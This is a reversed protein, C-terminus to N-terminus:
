PPRTNPERPGIHGTRWTCRGHGATASGPAFGPPAPSTCRTPSPRPFGVAPGTQPWRGRVPSVPTTSTLFEDPELSSGGPELRKRSGRPFGCHQFQRDVHVVVGRRRHVRADQFRHQGIEARAEAIGGAAVVREAPLSLLRDLLAALLNGVEDARARLLDDERAAGGLRVVEGDLADGLHVPLLTIVDDRHDGFVLGHEVGALVELLLSAVRGIQRHPPVAQDIELLKPLGDGVLGNQDAHHHDVVLDAHHLGDLLDARDRPFAADEEMGVRDLSGPFQGEVHVFQVDVDGRQRGVLHVSRLAHAREVDPALM